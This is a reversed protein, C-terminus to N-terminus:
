IDCIHKLKELLISTYLFVKINEKYSYNIFVFSLIFVSIILYYLPTIKIASIFIFLISLIIYLYSTYNLIRIRHLLDIM